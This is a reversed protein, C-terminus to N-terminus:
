PQAAQNRSWKAAFRWTENDREVETSELGLNRKCLEQAIGPIGDTPSWLGPHHEDHPPASLNQTTLIIPLVPLLQSGTSLAKRVHAFADQLVQLEKTRLDRM